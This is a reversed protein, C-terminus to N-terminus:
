SQKIRHMHMDIKNILSQIHREDNCNLSKFEVGIRTADKTQSIHIETCNVVKVTVNLQTQDIKLVGSVLRDKKINKADGFDVIAMGSLSIDVAHLPERDENLESTFTVPFLRPIIVRRWERRQMVKIERPFPMKLCDQGNLEDKSVSKVTFRITENQGSFLVDIASSKMLQRLTLSDSPVDAFIYEGDHSLLTSIFYANKDPTGIKLTNKKDILLSVKEIIGSKHTVVQELM